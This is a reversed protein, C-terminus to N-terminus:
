NHRGTGQYVMGNVVLCFRGEEEIFWLSVRKTKKMKPKEEAHEPEEEVEEVVRVKQKKTFPPDEAVSVVNKKTVLVPPKVVPVHTKNGDDSGESEEAEFSDQDDDDTVKAVEPKEVKAATEPELPIQPPSTGATSCIESVNMDEFNDAEWPFVLVGQHGVPIASVAPFDDDCHNSEEPNEAESPTSTISTTPAPNMSGIEFARIIDKSKICRPCNCDGDSSGEETDSDDGDSGCGQDGHGHCPFNRAAARKKMDVNFFSFGGGSIVLKECIIIIGNHNNIVGIKSSSM